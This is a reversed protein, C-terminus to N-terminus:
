RGIACAGTELCQEYRERVLAFKREWTHSRYVKQEGQKGMRQAQDPHDILYAIAGALAPVDGFPVLLGDQGDTIVDGVGWTRAGIVPKQYLWAELYVIGFSDARSPMVLVDCAALLDRKQEDSVPGLVRLRERDAAPLRDLYARFPSLMAGALVLEVQRGAQWLRRIAEVTHVTGKDYSMTSLSLIIPSWLHHQTRFRRGDGGVVEPPNVGPGAVCIRDAPVGQREYFAQETPTQAIVADSLRVLEIQHRMTYFRSLADQGPQAGAGLHTLPYVM